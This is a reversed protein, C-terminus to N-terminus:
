DQKFTDGQEDQKPEDTEKEGRIRYNEYALYAIILLLIVILWWWDSWCKCKSDTSTSCDETYCPLAEGKVEGNEDKPQEDKVDDDKEGEALAIHTNTEGLVDGESIQVGSGIVGTDEQKVPEAPEITKPETTDKDDDIGQEPQDEEQDPTTEEEEEEIVEEEPPTEKQQTTISIEEGYVAPSAASIPRFYYKTNASLGDIIVTHFTVKELDEITSNSYGLNPWPGLKSSDVPSPGYVVRSTAPKNTHWTIVVSITEPPTGGDKEIVETHIYLTTAGGGGGGGGGNNCAGCDEPCSSCIEGNNCEGDGCYPNYEDDDDPGSCGSDAMDTLGDGDNDIGDSCQPTDYNLFYIIPVPNSQDVNVTISGDNEFVGNGTNYGPIGTAEWGAIVEETVNYEGYAMDEIIICGNEGAQYEVNSIYFKWLPDTVVPEGEEFIGNNNLDEQKCITLTGSTDCADGIGDSDTDTQDPNYTNPCNDVDDCIGDQDDDACVGSCGNIAKPTGGAVDSNYWNNDSCREMPHKPVIKDGAPWENSADVEDVL